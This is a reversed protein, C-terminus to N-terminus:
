DLFWAEKTDLRNRGREDKQSSWLEEYAEKTPIGNPFVEVWDVLALIPKGKQQFLCKLTYAWLVANGPNGEALVLVWFALSDTVALGPVLNLRGLM